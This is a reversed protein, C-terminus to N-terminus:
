NQQSLADALGKIRQRLRDALGADDRVLRPLLREYHEISIHLASVMQGIVQSERIPYGAIIEDLKEDAVLANFRSLEENYPSDIIITIQSENSEQISKWDPLQIQIRNRILRESRRAAMRGALTRDQNIATLAGFVVSQSIEKAVFGLHKAQHRAVADIADSCYYLSEASYVDLAYVGGEALQAIEVESRCDKDILGFAEIRHHSPSNRLGKVANVVEDCGGKAVISIDPFLVEYLPKDLSQHEGEVFLIKKRSGLISRKLDDPIDFKPELIEVDWASARNGSWQCSRVMVVSAEPSGMPLEIEHTSVVFPCDSRLQFLASLFPEIISRHLHREPEDILLVTGSEVTLANAAIIVANREGDSMQAISYPSDAKQHRALIQEGDANEITVALRGVTLLDNIQTFIPTENNAISQVADLNGEYAHSMIKRALTNEKATLDFLVSSVRMEPNWERWRYVPNPEQGRLQEDYQRRSQPTLDISGSTLWTQRHASIRRVNEAGLQEVAHQILASKGSGNPGVIFLPAETTLQLSLADGSVLPVNLTNTM